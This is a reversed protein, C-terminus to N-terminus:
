HVRKSNGNDSDYDISYHIEEDSLGKATVERPEIEPLLM